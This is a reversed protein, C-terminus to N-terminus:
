ELMRSKATRRHAAPTEYRYLPTTFSLCQSHETSIRRYKSELGSALRDIIKTKRVASDQHETMLFVSKRLPLKGQSM